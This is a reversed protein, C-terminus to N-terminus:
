VRVTLGDNLANRTARWAPGAALLAAAVIVVGVVALDFWSPPVVPLTLGFRAAAVPGAAMTVLQVVAVGAGAGVGALLAAESILLAFVHGPRAGVARLIAMERRRENLSSLLITTISVLGVVIVFASVLALAREAAGVVSWLQSLAVGPIVALLPERPYTNIARQLRLVDVKNTLGVLAATITTPQLDMARTDEATIARALPTPAGGSWGVHIAEIAELSVHITRDVPTGTPALIGAVRFPRDTHEAFSVAGLGHSLTIERGVAYGLERAVAAGLVADYVDAFPAGDAVRLAQGGGYRYREFYAATTGLVRFGAHSDGLSLPVTWAVEPRAAIEQYSEWSINNTAQGIRFVSYLTLNIAGSRAGVILDTGSITNEFSARAGRRIKEVGLFLTVAVAIAVATLLAVGARNALSQVALRVILGARNM